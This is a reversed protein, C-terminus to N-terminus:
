PLSVPYQVNDQISHVLEEAGEKLQIRGQDGWSINIDFKRLFDIGLIVPTILHQYVIFEHEYLRGNIKVKCHLFGLPGMDTGTAARVTGWCLTTFAPAGMNNYQVGSLCSRTAGTDVLASPTTENLEIPIFAGRVGSLRINNINIEKM